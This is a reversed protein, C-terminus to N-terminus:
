QEQRWLWVYATTEVDHTGATAVHKVRYYPFRRLFNAYAFTRGLTTAESVLTDVAYVSDANTADFTGEIYISISVLATDAEFYYATYLSDFADGGFSFWNTEVTEASDVTVSTEILRGNDIEM